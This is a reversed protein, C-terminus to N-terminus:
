GASGTGLNKAARGGGATAIQGDQQSTVGSVGIAGIVTENVGIPLGGEIPIAGPRKLVPTRNQTVLAEELAKSPRKVNVATQAKQIAIEISGTQTEDLRQLALLHGGDDVLAIVVNWTNKVAEEEAAAALKTAGALTIVKKDALQAWATGGSLLCGGLAMLGGLRLSARM